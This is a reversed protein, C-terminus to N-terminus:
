LKEASQRKGDRRAYSYHWGEQTLDARISYNAEADELVAMDLDAVAMGETSTGLRVLPGAYPITIQSLGCYNRGPPGGANAFVVACTNEYTRATLISDLFLSEASPNWRHGADSAGSRTWLTPVIIIKAGQCVLERWAEPFALDWCVLLGVPGLPTQIVQHPTNGSSRLHKRETPGWLNKKTYSGLIEGTNSIFYTVNELLLKDPSQPTTDTITQVISGPVICINCEKALAQYKQLYTEWESCLPVFRPDDPIWNTLHFEPLVALHCGQAAADRIFKVAKAFNEAPRLPKVYLQIAAIKFIPTM